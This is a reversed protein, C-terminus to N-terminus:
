KRSDVANSKNIRVANSHGSSTVTARAEKGNVTANVDVHLNQVTVGGSSGVDKFTGAGSNLKRIDSIRKQAQPDIHSLWDNGYDRIAGEVQGPGAVYAAGAVMSNGKYRKYLAALYDRGVRELEEPSNDRAPEVGYGPDRLTGKVVQMSGAASSTKSRANMDGGSELQRTMGTLQDLGIHAIASDSRGGGEFNVGELGNLGALDYTGQMGTAAQHLGSVGYNNAAVRQISYDPSVYARTANDRRAQILGSNDDSSRLTDNAIARNVDEENAHVTRAFGGLGAMEAMGAAQADSIGRENARQRFLQALVNPDGQAERIDNLTLIGRTAVTIGVAARPDNNALRNYASHLYENAHQAQAKNLGFMELGQQQADYQTANQMGADQANGLYDSLNEISEGAINVAGAVLTATQGVVGSNQLGRMFGGQASRLSGGQVGAVASDFFADSDFLPSSRRGGSAGGLGSGGSGFGYNRGRGGSGSDEFDADEGAGFGGGGGGSGGSNGGGYAVLGTSLTGGANRRALEDNAEIIGQKISETTSGTVNPSGSDSMVFNPIYGNTEAQGDVRNQRGEGFSDLETGATATVGKIRRGPSAWIGDGVVADLTKSRLEAAPLHSNAEAFRRGAEIRGLASNLRGENRSYWNDDRDIWESRSEDGVTQTFLARQRGTVLMGLQVQDIYDQRSNLDNTFERPAKHEWIADDGILGDPSYLMNPYNANTVAGTERIDIGYEDAVRGRAIPELRHGRATDSNGSFNKGLVRDRLAGPSSTYNSHGLIEGVTSGTFAYQSRLDLWEQSGQTVNDHFTIPSGTYSTGDAVDRFNAHAADLNAINIAERRDRATNSSTPAGFDAVFDRSSSSAIPRSIRAAPATPIDSKDWSNTYIDEITQANLRPEYINNYGSRADEVSMYRTAVDMISDYESTSDRLPNLGVDGRNYDRGSNLLYKKTSGGNYVKSMSLLESSLANRVANSAEDRGEARGTISAVLSYGARDGVASGVTGLPLGAANLAQRPHAIGAIVSSDGIQPMAEHYGTKVNNASALGVEIFQQSMLNPLRAAIRAHDSNYSDRDKYSSRDLYAHALYNYSDAINGQGTQYEAMIDSQYHGVLPPMIDQNQALTDRLYAKFVNSHRVQENPNYQPLHKWVEDTPVGIQNLYDNVMGLEQTSGSGMIHHMTNGFGANHIEQAINAADSLLHEEHGTFGHLHEDSDATDWMGHLLEKNTEMWGSAEHQQIQAIIQSKKLSESLNLGVGTALVLLEAKDLKMMQKSKDSM